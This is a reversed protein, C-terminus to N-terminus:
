PKDPAATESEAENQKEHQELQIENEHEFSTNIMVEHADKVADMILKFRSPGLKAGGYYRVVFVATNSM